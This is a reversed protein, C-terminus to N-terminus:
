LELPEELAAGQVPALRETPRGNAMPVLPTVSVALLAERAQPLQRPQALRVAPAEVLYGDRGIDEPGVIQRARGPQREVLRDVRVVRERKEELQASQGVVHHEGGHAALLDAVPSDLRALQARREGVPCVRADRGQLRLEESRGDPEAQRRARLVLDREDLQRGGVVISAASPPAIGGPRRLQLPLAAYLVRTGPIGGPATKPVPPDCSM